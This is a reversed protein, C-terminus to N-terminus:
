KRLLYKKNLYNFYLKIGDDITTPSSINELLHLKSLDAKTNKQIAFENVIPIWAIADGLSGSENIVNLATEEANKKAYIVGQLNQLSSTMQYNLDMLSVEYNFNKLKNIISNIKGNENHHYEILINSISNVASLNFSEILEYEFGEIDIKLLDITKLNLDKKLTELDICNVQALYTNKILNASDFKKQSEIEFGSLTTHDTSTFLRSSCDTSM